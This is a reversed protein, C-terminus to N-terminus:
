LGIGIMLNIFNLLSMFNVCAALLAIFKCFVLYM